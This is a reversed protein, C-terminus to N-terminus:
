IIYSLKAERIYCYFLLNDCLMKTYIVIIM